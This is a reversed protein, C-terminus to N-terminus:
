FQLFLVSVVEAEQKRVCVGAASVGCSVEAWDCLRLNESTTGGLAGWGRGVAEGVGLVSANETLGMVLNMEGMRVHKGM